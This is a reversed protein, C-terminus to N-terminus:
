DDEWPRDSSWYVQCEATLSYTVGELHDNSCDFLQDGDSRRSQFRTRLEERMKPGFKKDESHAAEYARAADSLVLSRVHEYRELGKTHGLKKTWAFALYDAKDRLDTASNRSVESFGGADLKKFLLEASGLGPQSQKDPDGLLPAIADMGDDLIDKVTAATIRKGEIRKKLEVEPQETAALYAPLTQQHDLSAARSCHEVLARAAAMVSAHSCESAEAWCGALADALRMTADQLKPLSDTASCKKLAQFAAVETAQADKAIRILWGKVSTPLDTVASAARIAALAFAISSSNASSHFPHNTAFRFARFYNPHAVDLRVFRVFARRVSDDGAKWPRQDSQKTKVQEGTFTGDGHKILIDEHHECFVETIDQTEDLLACCVIAAWAYQYRYRRATEDGPDNTAIVHDPSSNKTAPETM